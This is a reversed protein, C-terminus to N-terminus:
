GLLGKVIGLATERNTDNVFFTTWKPTERCVPIGAAKMAALGKEYSIVGCTNLGLTNLGDTKHNFVSAKYVGQGSPIISIAMGYAPKVALTLPKGKIMEAVKTFLWAINPGFTKALDVQAFTGVDGLPNQGNKDALLKVTPFEVPAAEPAVNEVVVPEAIVPEAVMEVVKTELAEEVVAKVANKKKGVVTRM